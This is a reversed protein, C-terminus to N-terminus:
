KKLSVSLACLIEMVGAVSLWNQHDLIYQMYSRCANKYSFYPIILLQLKHDIGGYVCVTGKM